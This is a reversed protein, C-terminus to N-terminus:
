AKHEEPTLRTDYNSAMNLWPHKLMTQASARKEPDWELMPLLFDAFAHAEDTKFRYKERLVKHLPWYNLGRIRKLQGSRDFLKRYKTGSLAMSEPMRGLLEMMQALHDDDQSYKKTNGNRPEFLFDGTAM